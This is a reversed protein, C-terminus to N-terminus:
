RRADNVANQWEGAKLPNLKVSKQLQEFAQLRSEASVVRPALGVRVRASSSKILRRQINLLHRSVTPVSQNLESAIEILPTGTTWLELVLWEQRKLSLLAEILRAKKEELAPEELENLEARSRTEPPQGPDSVIKPNKINKM